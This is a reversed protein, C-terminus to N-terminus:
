ARPAPPAPPRAPAVSRALESVCCAGPGLPGPPRRATLAGPGGAIRLLGGGMGHGMGAVHGRGCCAARGERADGWCLSWCM